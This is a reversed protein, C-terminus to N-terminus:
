HFEWLNCPLVTIYVFSVRVLDGPGNITNIDGPEPDAPYFHNVRLVKNVHLAM